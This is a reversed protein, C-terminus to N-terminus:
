SLKVSWLATDQASWFLLYRGEPSISWDDNAIAIPQAISLSVSQGTTIQYAIFTMPKGPQFPIYIVTQDDRWRWSGFFPLKQPTAGAQTALLYAGANAPDTQMNLYYLLHGGGPAIAVGRLNDATLLPDSKGTSLTYIALGSTLSNPKRVSTLLRDDDLWNVSGGAQTFLQKRGTGDVNAIWVQTDPPQTGPVAVRPFVQWLLRTANPSFRPTAGSTALAINSKDALKIVSVQNNKLVLDYAGDASALRSLADPAPQPTGGAPDVSMVTALTDAPGDWYHITEGSWWAYSCCGATTLKTVALTAPFDLPLAPIDPRTESPAQSRSPLPWVSRYVNLINGGFHTAPQDTITQWQNPNYLDKAFSGFGGMSSLMAWDADILQAPDYATGYDRSRIELHLHPRSVCTLDPDGSLAVIEGRNVKQGRTVTPKKLLHGYFSIYGLDPHLIALNHPGAGHSLVDVEDVIGDAIAAIPTGCATGFDVGFHFGQGAAYWFKGYNYAGVTNGYQQVIMWTTPGPPTTFPVSFPAAKTQAYTPFAGITLTLAFMCSILRLWTKLFRKVM